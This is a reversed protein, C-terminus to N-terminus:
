FTNYNKQRTTDMNIINKTPQFRLKEVYTYTYLRVESWQLSIRPPTITWGAYLTTSCGGMSHTNSQIHVGPLYFISM